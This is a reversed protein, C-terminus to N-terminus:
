PIPGAAQWWAYADAYSGDRTTGFALVLLDRNTWQVTVGGLPDDYCALVGTSRGSVTYDVMAGSVSCDTGAVEAAAPVLRMFAAELDELTAYRYYEAADLSGAPVCLIAELQGSSTDPEVTRCDAAIDAPVAQLLTGVPLPTPAIESPLPALSPAPTALGPDGSAGPSPEVVPEASPEPTPDLVPADSAAPSGSALPSADPGGTGTSVVPAYVDGGKVAMGTFLAEFRDGYIGAYLGPRTFPGISVADTVDGANIGDVWVAIRDGGEGTVACEIELRTTSDETPTPGPLPGRDVVTLDSGELRIVVWEGDTTAIAGYFSPDRGASGCMPGAEGPGRDFTTEVGVRMVPVSRFPERWTWDSGTKDEQRIRIGGDEAEIRTTDTRSLGWAGPRLLNDGGLARDAGLTIVGAQGRPDPSPSQAVVGVGASSVTAALAALGALAGARGTAVRRM